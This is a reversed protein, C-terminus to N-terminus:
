LSATFENMRAGCMYWILLRHSFMTQFAAPSHTTLIWRPTIKTENLIQKFDSKNRLKAIVLIYHTEHIYILSRHLPQQLSFNLTSIFNWTYVSWRLKLKMFTFWHKWIVDLRGLPHVLFIRFEKQSYFYWRCFEDSCRRYITSFECYM